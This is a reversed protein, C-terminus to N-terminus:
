RTLLSSIARRSWTGRGNAHCRDIDGLTHEAANLRALELMKGCASNSSSNRSPTRHSERPTAPHARRVGLRIAISSPRRASFSAGRDSVVILRQLHATSHGSKRPGQSLRPQWRDVTALLGLCARPVRHPYKRERQHDYKRSRPM